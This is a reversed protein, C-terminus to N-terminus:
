QLLSVGRGIGLNVVKLNASHKQQPSPPALQPSHPLIEHLVCTCELKGREKSSPSLQHLMCPNASEPISQLHHTVLLRHSCASGENSHQYSFRNTIPITRQRREAAYVQTCTKSRIGQCHFSGSDHSMSSLISITIALM